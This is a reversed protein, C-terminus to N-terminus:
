KKSLNMYAEWVASALVQSPNASCVRVVEAIVKREDSIVQAQESGAAVYNLGSWFGFIWVTGEARSASTQRWHTCTLTGIGQLQVVVKTEETHALSSLLSLALALFGLRQLM